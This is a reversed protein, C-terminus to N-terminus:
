CAALKKKVYKVWDPKKTKSSQSMEFFEQDELTSDTVWAKLQAVQLM